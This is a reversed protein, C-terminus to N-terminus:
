FRWTLEGGRGGGAGLLEGGGAGVARQGAPAVVAAAKMRGPTTRAPPSMVVAGVETRERETSPQASRQRARVPQAAKESTPLWHRNLRLLPHDRWAAPGPATEPRGWCATFVILRGAVAAPACRRTPPQVPPARRGPRDNPLGLLALQLCAPPRGDGQWRDEAGCFAGGGAGKGGGRGWGRVCSVGRGGRGKVFGADLKGPSVQLRGGAAARGLAGAVGPAM